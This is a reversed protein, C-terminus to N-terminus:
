FPIYLWLYMRFVSLIVKNIMNWQGLTPYVRAERGTEHYNLQLPLVHYTLFLFCSIFALVHYGVQPSPLVRAECMTLNEQVRIGFEATVRDQSYSNALVM